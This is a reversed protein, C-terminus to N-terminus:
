NPHFTIFDLPNFQGDTLIGKQMQFKTDVAKIYRPFSFYIEPIKKKKKKQCMLLIVQKEPILM